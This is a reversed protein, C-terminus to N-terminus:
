LWDMGTIMSRGIDVTLWQGTLGYVVSLHLRCSDDAQDFVNDQCRIHNQYCYRREWQMTMCLLKRKKRKRSVQM